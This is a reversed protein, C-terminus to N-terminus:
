PVWALPARRRSLLALCAMSCCAHAHALVITSRLPWRLSAAGFLAALAVLALRRPLRVGPGSVAESAMASTFLLNLAAGTWVGAGCLQLVGGLAAGGVICWTAPSLRRRVALHRVGSVVHPVGLIAAGLWLSILPFRLAVVASTAVCGLGLWPARRRVDVLRLLWPRLGPRRCAARLVAARARDAGMIARDGWLSGLDDLRHMADRAAGM